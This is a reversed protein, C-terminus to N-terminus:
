TDGGEEEDEIEAWKLEVEVWIEKGEEPQIKHKERINAPITVRGRSDMELPQQRGIEIKEVTSM